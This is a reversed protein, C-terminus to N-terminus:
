NLLSAEPQELQRALSSAIEILVMDVLTHLTPSQIDQVASRLDIALGAARDLAALVKHAKLPLTEAETGPYDFLAGCAWDATGRADFSLRMLDLITRPAADGTDSVRYITQEIGKRGHNVRASFAARDKPHLAPVFASVPAGERIVAPDLRFIRAMGLCPFIRNDAINWEFLGVINAADLLPELPALDPWPPLRQLSPVISRELGPVSRDANDPSIDPFLAVTLVTDTPRGTALNEHNNYTTTGGCRCDEAATPWVHGPPM